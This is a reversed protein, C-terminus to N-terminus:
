EKPRFYSLDKFEGKYFIKAAVPSYVDEQNEEGIAVAAILIPNESTADAYSSVTAAEASTSLGNQILQTKWLYMYTDYDNRSSAVLYAMACSSYIDGDNPGVIFYNIMKSDENAVIRASIAGTSANYTLDEITVVPNPGPNPETTKVSVFKVPGAVGNIDEACYAIVYEVGSEYGYMALGDKGSPEANWLNVMPVPGAPGEAYTDYFFTMWKERDNVDNIYHPPRIMDDDESTTPDDEDYPWVIQFRYCMTKSYDYSFNYTFGWRSVETITLDVNALCADPSTRDLVKTRFPESFYLDSLDGFRNKAVSVVVYETDPLLDYQINDSDTFESGTLQQLDSDYGFRINAVGYGESVLNYALTSKDAASLGKLTEAESKLYVRYFCSECTKDMWATIYSITAGVRDGVYVEAKPTFDGQPKQLLEFDNRVVIATPTLNADVAVAVATNRPNVDSATAFTRKVALNEELSADYCMSYTRCFDRMMRDGFIDMFEGMEATSWIWHYFYKCDENPHYKVIFASHGVLSEINIRPDGVVPKCKTTVECLSLTAPNTGEEDYCGLIMIYYDCDPVLVAETLTTNAWDFEKAEFDDSNMNFVTQSAGSTSSMMLEIVKDECNELPTQFCDEELLFNYLLAKPYVDVRYSNIALGPKAEFIINQETLSTVTVSVGNAGADFSGKQVALPFEYYDSSAGSGTEPGKQKDCAAWFLVSAVSLLAYIIKRM